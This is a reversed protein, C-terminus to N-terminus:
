LNVTRFYRQNLLCDLNCSSYISPACTDYFDYIRYFVTLFHTYSFYCPFHVFELGRSLFQFTGKGSCVLGHLALATIAARTSRTIRTEKERVRKEIQSM